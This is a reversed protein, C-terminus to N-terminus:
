PSRKGNCPTILDPGCQRLLLFVREVVIDAVLPDSGVSEALWLRKGRRETPNRWPPQRQELRARVAAAPEGLLVPFDETAHMGDSIFCPVVVLDQCASLQPCDALRPEEELFVAQVEAYLGLERVAAAHAEVAKRSNENKGTGHGAIFLATQSLQPVDPGLHTATVARARALVAEALRPHTGVPSCYGIWQAGRRQVRPYSALGDDRLGLQRPIVEDSFYGESMFLPVIFVRPETLGALVETLRPAQKLFAERVSGFLKRQRLSAAHQYVPAGSDGNVSSGHGLLVLAAESLADSRM